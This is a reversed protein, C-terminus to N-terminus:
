LPDALSPNSEFTLIALRAHRLNQPRCFIQCQASVSHLTNFGFIRTLMASSIIIYSMTVDPDLMLVMLSAWHTDKSRLKESQLPILYPRHYLRWM